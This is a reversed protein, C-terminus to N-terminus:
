SVKVGHLITAWAQPDTNKADGLSWVQTVQYNGNFMSFNKKGKFLDILGVADRVVELSSIGVWVTQPINVVDSISIDSRM